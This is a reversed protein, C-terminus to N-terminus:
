VPSNKFRLLLINESSQYGIQFTVLEKLFVFATKRRTLVRHELKWVQAWCCAITNFAVSLFLTLFFRLLVKLEPGSTTIKKLSPNIFSTCQLDRITDGSQKFHSTNQWDSNIQRTASTQVIASLIRSVTFYDVDQM